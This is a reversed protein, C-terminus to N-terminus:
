VHWRRLAAFSQRISDLPNDADDREVFGYELGAQRASHLLRSFDIVGQGVETIAGDATADKLHWLPFRGPYREFLALPQQGARHMWYTDLEFFVLQPDTHELLLQYPIVGETAVFEFDHNHYALRLGAEQCRAGWRNLNEVLRQYDALTRRHADLWPLVLYRNGLAVATDLAQEIDAELVEQPFHSAPASLDLDALWRRLVAPSHGFLGAFEVQRYGAAAVQELTREVSQAMLERLTYLQVGRLRPNSPSIAPVALAAAPLATAALGAAARSLFRRRSISSEVSM